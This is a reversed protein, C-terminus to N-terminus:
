HRLTRDRELKCPRNSRGTAVQQASGARSPARRKYTSSKNNVMSSTSPASLHTALAPSPSAAWPPQGRSRCVTVCWRSARESTWAGRYAVWHYTWWPKRRCWSGACWPAAQMWPIRLLSGGGRQQAGGASAKGGVRVKNAQNGDVREDALLLKTTQLRLATTQSRETVKRHASRPWRHSQPPTPSSRPPQRACSSAGFTVKLRTDDPMPACWGV